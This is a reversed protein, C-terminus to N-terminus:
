SLLQPWPRTFPWENSNSSPRWAFALSQVYPRWVREQAPVLLSKYNREERFSLASSKIYNTLVFDVGLIAEMPPHALRPSELILASGFDLMSNWTHRGGHQFHYCPHMFEHKGGKPSDDRDLHWSCLVPVINGKNSHKGTLVVNFELKSFPDKIESEEPCHGAVKISLELTVDFVKNPVPNKVDRLKFLLRELTYGWNDGSGKRCEEAALHLPHVSPCMRTRNLIDALIELERARALRFRNINVKPM